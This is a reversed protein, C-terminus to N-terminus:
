LTLLNSYFGSLKKLEEVTSDNKIRNARWSIVMTNGLEYGNGAIIQDISPSNDARSGKNLSYDLKIGLVPCADPLELKQLYELKLNKAVKKHNLMKSLWKLKPQGTYLRKKTKNPTPINFTELVQYIRQRSVNYYKGIEALTKGEALMKVLLERDYKKM